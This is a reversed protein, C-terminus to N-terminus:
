RVLDARPGRGRLRDHRDAAGVPQAGPDAPAPALEVRVCSDVTVPELDFDVSSSSSVTDDDARPHDDITTLPDLTVTSRAAQGHAHHRGQHRELGEVTVDAGVTGSNNVDVSYDAM